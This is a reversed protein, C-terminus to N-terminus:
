TLIIVSSLGPTNDDIVLRKESVPIEIFDTFDEKM